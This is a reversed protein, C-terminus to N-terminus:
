PREGQSSITPEPLNKYGLLLAPCEVIQFCGPDDVDNYLNPDVGKPMFEMSANACEGCARYASSSDQCFRERAIRTVPGCLGQPGAESCLPWQPCLAAGANSWHTYRRKGPSVSIGKPPFNLFMSLIVDSGTPLFFPAGSHNDIHFSAGRRETKSGDTQTHIFRDIQIDMAQGDPLDYGQGKKTMVGRGRYGQDVFSTYTFRSGDDEPHSEEAVYLDVFTGGEPSPKYQYYKVCQNGNFHLEELVCASSNRMVALVPNDNLERYIPPSVARSSSGYDVIKWELAPARYRLAENRIDPTPGIQEGGKYVFLLCGEDDRCFTAGKKSYRQFYASADVILDEIKDGDFDLAYVKILALADPNLISGDSELAKKLDRKPPFKKASILPDDEGNFDFSGWANLWDVSRGISDSAVAESGKLFSAFFLAFCLACVRATLAVNQSGLM